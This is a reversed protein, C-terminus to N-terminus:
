IHVLQSRRHASQLRLKALAVRAWLGARHPFSVPHYLRDFWERAVVTRVYAVTQEVLGRVAEEESAGETMLSLKPAEAYWRGDRVYTYIRVTIEGSGARVPTEPDRSAARSMPPHKGAEAEPAM